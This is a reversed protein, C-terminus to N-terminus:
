LVPVTTRKVTIETHTHPPFGLDECTVNLSVLMTVGNQMSNSKGLFPFNTSCVVLSSLNERRPIGPFAPPSLIEALASRLM